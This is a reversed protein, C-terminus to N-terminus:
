GHLIKITSFDHIFEQLVFLHLLGQKHAVKRHYEVKRKVYNHKSVCIYEIPVWMPGMGM